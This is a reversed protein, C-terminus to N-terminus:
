PPSIPSQLFEQPRVLRRIGQKLLATEFNILLGVELGTLRLYTSLQAVHIATLHDVAKLEVVIRNEVVFDARYSCTLRVGKYELPIEVQRRFAFGRLSLEHAVCDEYASELLGPGLWRHVEVCAGIVAESMQDNISM